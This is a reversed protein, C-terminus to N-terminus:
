ANWRAVAAAAFGASMAALMTRHLRTHASRELQLVQIGLYLSITSFTAAGTVRCSECDAPM